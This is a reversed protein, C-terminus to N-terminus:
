SMCSPHWGPSWRRCAQRRASRAALRLRMPFDLIRLADPRHLDVVGDIWEAGDMVACVQVADAVAWAGPAGARWGRSRVLKDARTPCVPDETATAQAEQVAEYAAGALYTQRRITAESMQVGTLAAVMETAREFPM